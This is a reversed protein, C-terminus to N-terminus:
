TSVWSAGVKSFAIDDNQVIQRDGLGGLSGPDQLRLAGPEEEQRGEAGIQVRDLHGECLELRM